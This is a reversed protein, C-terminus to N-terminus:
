RVPLKLARSIEAWSTLLIPREGRNSHCGFVGHPFAAGLPEAIGDIEEAGAISFTGLFRHDNDLEYVFYRSQGQSSLILCGDHGMGNERPPKLLTIGELDPKLGHEDVRIVLKGPTPADPEAGM